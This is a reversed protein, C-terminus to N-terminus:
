FTYSLYLGQFDPSKVPSLSLRPGVLKKHLQPVLVGVGAGIGYGLLNDSLFHNGSEMRYYAVVAPIVAAATWVYPKARSDPNFDSFVKAAFFTASATAATHGAFFSRRAGKKTRTEMPAESSYVYPRSRNVTGATISYIAGTVAMTELYLTLVQGAKSGVNKNLLLAVPMAFSAYFPYYSLKDANESYNGAIFRDFFLVDSKDKALVQSETLGEKKKILSLGLVNLGISGAIVPGDVKFSTHYPSTKEKVEGNQAYGNNLTFVAFFLLCISQARM